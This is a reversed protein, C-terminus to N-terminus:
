FKGLISSQMIAAIVSQALQMGQNAMQLDMIAETVDADEIGATLSQIKLDYEELRFSMMDLRASRGGLDSLSALVDEHANTLETLRASISALQEPESLGDTNYLDDRIAALVQFIDFTGSYALHEEGTRVIGSSDINTVTGDAPNPLTQNSSFDIAHTTSGGDLSLTGTSTINVTGSSLAGTLDLYVRDGSDNTVMFDAADPATTDYAVATGGDLSLTGTTASTVTLTLTHTGAAGIITDGSASSAGAAVGTGAAYTTTGHIVSLTANGRGSDAGTGNTAGTNGNFVTAGRTIKQFIEPGPINMAVKTNSSIWAYTIDNNGNYTVAGSSSLSYPPSSTDSGGFLYRGGFKTNAMNITSNLIEDIQKALTNRDAQSLGSSAGQVALEKAEILQTSLSQLTSAGSENFGNIMDINSMYNALNNREDKFKLVRVMEFPSDSPSNIRKGTLLPIQAEEVRRLGKQVYLLSNNYLIDQTIRISM